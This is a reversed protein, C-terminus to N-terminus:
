DTNCHEPNCVAKVSNSNEDGQSLECSVDLSTKPPCSSDLKCPHRPPSSSKDMNAYVQQPELTLLLDTATRNCMGRAGRRVRSAHVFSHLTKSLERFQFFVKRLRSPPLGSKLNFLM